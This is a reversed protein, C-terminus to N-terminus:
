RYTTKLWARWDRDFQEFSIAFAGQLATDLNQTTDYARALKWFGALGGHHTTIYAVLAYALGYTIQPDGKLTEFHQLDQKEFSDSRDIIPIIRDARVITRLTDTYPVGAIYEALGESMWGSMRSLPLFARENVLHTYEHTLTQELATEWGLAPEYFGFAYSHPAMVDFRDQLGAGRYYSALVYPNTPSGLSFTPRIHVLPRQQDVTGLQKLVNERAREMIHMITPTTDDLWPYSYYIFHASEQQERVGVQAANPESMMWRRDITRFTLDAVLGHSEIQALVFGYSQQTLIARLTYNWRKDRPASRMDDDFRTQIFRRLPLNSPDVVQTLLEADRQNYARTFIDLTQQIGATIEADSVPAATALPTTLATTEVTAVPSPPRSADSADTPVASIPSPLSACGVIIWCVLIMGVIRTITGMTKM